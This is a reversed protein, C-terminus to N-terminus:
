KCAPKISRALSARVAEGGHQRRAMSIHAAYLLAIFAARRMGRHLRRAHFSSAANRHHLSTAM